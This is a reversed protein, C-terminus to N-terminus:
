YLACILLKPRGNDLTKGEEVFLFSNFYNILLKNSKIINHVEFSVPRYRVTVFTHIYFTSSALKGNLVHIILGVNVPM